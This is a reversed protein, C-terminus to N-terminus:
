LSTKNRMTIFDSDVKAATLEQKRKRLQYLTVITYTSWVGIWDKILDNVTFSRGEVFLQHVEDVLGYSAAFIAALLNTMITLRHHTKLALLIFVYLLAFEILHLSELIFGLTM